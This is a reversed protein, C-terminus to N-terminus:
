SKIVLLRVLPRITKLRAKKHIFHLLQVNADFFYQCLFKFVFHPYFISKINNNM